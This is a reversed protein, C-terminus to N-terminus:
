SAAALWAAFLKSQPADPALQVSAAIVPRGFEALKQDLHAPDVRTSAELVLLFARGRDSVDGGLAEVVDVVSSEDPTLVFPEAGVYSVTCGTFTMYRPSAWVEELRGLPAFGPVPTRCDFRFRPVDEVDETAAAQASATRVTPVAATTTWPRTLILAGLSWSAAATLTLFTRRSVPGQSRGTM